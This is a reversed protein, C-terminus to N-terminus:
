NETRTDWQTSSGHSPLINRTLGEDFVEEKLYERVYAQVSRTYEEQMYHTPIMGRNLAKLLDLDDVEASVLPLMEYRWARGWALEGEGAETEKRKLWV